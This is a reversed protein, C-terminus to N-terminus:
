APLDPRAAQLCERTLSLLSAAQQLCEAVVADSVADGEYDDLERRKRLADLVIM